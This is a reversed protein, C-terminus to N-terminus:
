HFPNNQAGPEIHHQHVWRVFHSEHAYKSKVGVQHKKKKKRIEQLRKLPFLQTKSAWCVVSRVISDQM